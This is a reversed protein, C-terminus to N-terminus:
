TWRSSRSTYPNGCPTLRPPPQSGGLAPDQSLIKEIEEPVVRKLGDITSHFGLIVGPITELAPLSKDLAAEYLKQWNAQISVSVKVGECIFSIGNSLLKWM